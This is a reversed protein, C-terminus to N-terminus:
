DINVYELGNRANEICIRVQKTRCHPYSLPRRGRIHERYENGALMIRSM